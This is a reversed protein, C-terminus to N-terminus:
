FMSLTLYLCGTRWDLGSRMRVHFMRFVRRRTSRGEKPKTTM